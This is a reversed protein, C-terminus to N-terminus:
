TSSADIEGMRSKARWTEEFTIEFTTGSDGTKHIDGDIQDVLMNVLQLGLTSTNRFDLGAPLGPGDDSVILRLRRGSRRLSVRIDVTRDERCAYKLSNSVLESIIQGCPVATDIDLPLDEVEVSVMIGVNKKYANKLSDVLSNVYEAFNIHSLDRSECLEEHVLAMAMIRNQSERLATGIEERSEGSKQLDLLNSIIQMNNNVRNHIEKLLAEKEYLSSELRTEAWKREEVEDLLSNNLRELQEQRHLLETVDRSIGFMAQRGNWLGRAFHTEVRIVEGTKTTLAPTLYSSLRTLSGSIATKGEETAGPQLSMANMGIFEDRPYGLRRVATKNVELIGGDEDLVFILDDLTDFLTQLNHRTEDLAKGDSKHRTIDLLTLIRGTQMGRNDLLPSIQADFWRTSDPRELRVESPRDSLGRYSALLEPWDELALTVSMGMPNRTGLLRRAALNMDIVRDKEDFVVVGDAMNAIVTERAVPVFDFLQYRFMCWAFLLGILCNSFPTPDIGNLAPINLVYINLFYIVNGSMAAVAGLLLMITQQYYRKYTNLSTKVLIITGAIMLAYSYVALLWIGPGHEYILLAGPVDSVPSIGTWILHHWDNTAVLALVLGPIVWVLRVLKGNLRRSRQSYVINFLLWLPAVSVIGVYTLRAFLIKLWFEVSAMEMMSGVSWVLASVMMLSFYLGGPANRRRLVYLSVLAIVVSTICYLAVYATFQFSM